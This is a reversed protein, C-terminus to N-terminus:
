GDAILQEPAAPSPAPGDNSGGHNRQMQAFPMLDTDTADRAQDYNTLLFCAFAPVSMVVQGSSPSYIDGTRLLDDRVWSLKKQERGLTAAIAKTTARGGHLAM